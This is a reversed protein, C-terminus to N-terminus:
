AMGAIKGAGGIITSLPGLVSNRREIKARAKSEEKQVRHGWAEMAANSKATLADQESLARTDSFLNLASGSSTDVGSSALAVKQQSIVQSGEMRARGAEAAGRQEANAASAESLKANSDAVGAAFQGSKYQSYASIGTSAAMAAMAISVSVPECM